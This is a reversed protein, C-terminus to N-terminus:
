KSEWGWESMKGRSDVMQVTAAVRRTEADGLRTGRDDVASVQVVGGRHWGVVHVTRRQGQQGNLTLPLYHRKRILLDANDPLEACILAKVPLCRVNMGRKRLKTGLDFPIPMWAARRIPRNRKVVEAFQVEEGSEPDFQMMAVGDWWEIIWMFALPAVVSPMLGEGM